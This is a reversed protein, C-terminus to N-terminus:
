ATVKSNELSIKCEIRIILVYCLKSFPVRVFPWTKGTVGRNVDLEIERAHISKSTFIPIFIFSSSAPFLFLTYCHGNIRLADRCPSRSYFYRLPFQFPMSLSTFKDGPVRSNREAQGGM